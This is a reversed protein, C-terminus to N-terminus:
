CQVVAEVEDTKSRIFGLIKSPYYQFESEGNNGEIHYCVYTWDYWEAGHYFPHANYKTVRGDNEYVTARTYGIITETGSERAVRKIVEVLRSDLGRKKVHVNQKACKLRISETTPDIHVIYEGLVQYRMEYIPNDNQENNEDRAKERTSRIHVFQTAKSIAMISYFQGATQSAFEAVRRQTKLGPAKVFRKHSAEGPGSYFNMGTGFECMYEPMKALAHMKPINYGHSDEKRPFFKQIGKIVVSLARRSERVEKKPRADHIWEGM